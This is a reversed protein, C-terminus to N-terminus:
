KVPLGCCHLVPFSIPPPDQVPHIGIRVQQILNNASLPDRIGNGEVHGNMFRVVIGAHGLVLTLISWLCFTLDLFCHM